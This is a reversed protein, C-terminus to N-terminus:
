RKVIIKQDNSMFKYNGTSLEVCIVGDNNRYADAVAETWGKETMVWDGTKINLTTTRVEAEAVKTSKTPKKEEVSM